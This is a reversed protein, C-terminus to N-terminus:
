TIAVALRFAYYTSTGILDTLFRYRRPDCKGPYIRGDDIGIKKAM